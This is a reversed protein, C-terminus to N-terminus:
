TVASSLREGVNIELILGPPARCGLQEALILRSENGKTRGGEQRRPSDLFQVGAKDHAVVVSLREGARDFHSLMLAVM